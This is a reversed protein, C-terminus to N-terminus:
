KKVRDTMVNLCLNAGNLVALLPILIHKLTLGTCGLRFHVPAQIHPYSQIRQTIFSHNKLSGHCKKKFLYVM